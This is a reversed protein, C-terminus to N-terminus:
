ISHILITYVESNSIGSNSEDSEDSSTLNSNSIVYLSDEKDLPEDVVLRDFSNPSAKRTATAVHHHHKIASQSCLNGDKTTLQDIHIVEAMKSGRNTCGSTRSGVLKFGDDELPNLLVFLSQYL